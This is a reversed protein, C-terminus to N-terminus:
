SVPLVGLRVKDQAAAPAALAAIAALASVLHRLPNGYKSM